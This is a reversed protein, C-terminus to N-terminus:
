ADIINRVLQRVMAPEFPKDCIASVGSQQVAALRNQNSESTVMLVPLSSQTSETRIHDILEKGDMRPMNYDTVIFDYYNQEIMELGRLGDEAHDIRRIGLSQLVRTIHKRSLASDDVVLVQLAGADLDAIEHVTDDLMDITTALATRLEAASFPKPLIGVVGAQRIPDLYRFRTESSILMFPTDSFDASERIRHVLDTGTMDPLYLSSIVLDPSQAALRVLADAGSDCEIATRIGNEQLARCIIRRQTPSPEVVLVALEPLSIDAM